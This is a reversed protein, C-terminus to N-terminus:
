GGWSTSNATGCSTCAGAVIKRVYVLSLIPKLYFSTSFRFYLSVFYMYLTCYWLCVYFQIVPHPKTPHTHTNCKQLISLTSIKTKWWKKGNIKGTIMFFNFKSSHTQCWLNANSLLLYTSHQWLEDVNWMKFFLYINVLIRAVLQQCYYRYKTNPQFEYPLNM